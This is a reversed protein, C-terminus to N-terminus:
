RSTGLTAFSPCVSLCFKRDSYTVQNIGLAMFALFCMLFKRIHMRKRKQSDSFDPPPAFDTGGYTCYQRYAIIGIFFVYLFVLKNNM